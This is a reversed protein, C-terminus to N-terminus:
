NQGVELKLPTRRAKREAAIWATVKAADPGTFPLVLTQLYIDTTTKPGHGMYARARSPEIVASELFAAFTRRLSYTDLAVGLVDTTVAAFLRRFLQEGCAPRIVDVLALTPRRAARTKTGNVLVHGMLLGGTWSAGGRQWYEAPRMGTTALTWAMAALTEKPITRRLTRGGGRKGGYVPKDKFGACVADLEAVTLPRRHLPTSSEIRKFRHVRKVDLWLPSLEGQVSSAFALCHARLRNFAVKTDAVRMRERIARVFRPLDAVTATKAGPTREVHRVTTWLDARYSVSSEHTEAFHRLAALLGASTEATPLKDLQGREYHYLVVLPTYVGDKIGKLVDLRGIKALGTIMANIRRFTGTHDTGSSLAIRGVGAIVRDIRKNRSM